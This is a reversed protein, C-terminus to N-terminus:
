LERVQRRQEHMGNGDGSVRQQLYVHVDVHVLRRESLVWCRVVLLHPCWQEHLRIGDGSVRQRLHVHEACVLRRATSRHAVAPSGRVAM